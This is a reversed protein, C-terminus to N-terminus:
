EEPLRKPVTDEIYHYHQRQRMTQKHNGRVTVGGFFAGQIDSYQGQLTNAMGQKNVEGPEVGTNFTRGFETAEKGIRVVDEQDLVPTGSNCEHIYDGSNPATVYRQNCHPCIGVTMIKM